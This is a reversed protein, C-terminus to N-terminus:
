EEEGLWRVMLRRMGLSFFGGNVAGFAAGGSPGLVILIQHKQRDVGSSPQILALGIFLGAWAGLAVGALLTIVTEWRRNGFFGVVAVVGGCIVAGAFVFFAVLGAIALPTDFPGRQPDDFTSSMQLMVTTLATASFFGGVLLATMINAAGKPKIM